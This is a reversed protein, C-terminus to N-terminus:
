DKGLAELIRDLKELQEESLLPRISNLKEFLEEYEEKTMENEMKKNVRIIEFFIEDESKDSYADAVEGIAEMQRETPNFDNFEDMAKKIDKEKSM